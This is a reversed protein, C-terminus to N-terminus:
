CWCTPSHDLVLGNVQTDPGTHEINSTGLSLLPRRPAQHQHRVSSYVLDHGRCCLATGEVLLSAFAATGCRLWPDPVKTLLPRSKQAAGGWFLRQHVRPHRHFHSRTHVDNSLRMRGPRASPKVLPQFPFQFCFRVSSLPNDPAFTTLLYIPRSVLVPRLPNLSHSFHSIPRDDRSALQRILSSSPSTHAHARTHHLVHHPGTEYVLQRKRPTGRCQLHGLLRFWIHVRYRALLRHAPRCDPVGTCRQRSWRWPQLSCVSAAGSVDPEVASM